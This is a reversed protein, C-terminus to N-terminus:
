PEYIGRNRYDDYSKYKYQHEADPETNRHYKKVEAEFDSRGEISREHAYVKTNVYEEYAKIDEIKGDANYWEGPAFEVAVLGNYSRQFRGAMQHKEEDSLEKPSDIKIKTLWSAGFIENIPKKHTVEKENIVFRNFIAKLEKQGENLEESDAVKRKGMMINFKDEKRKREAPPLNHITGRKATYDDYSSYQYQHPSDPETNRRTKKINAEFEANQPSKWRGYVKTNVHNEYDEINEIKGDMNFWEGPEFEVALLGNWGRQFKNAMEHKQEDTLKEPSDIKIKTLWTAGMSENIPAKYGHSKHMGMIQKREEETLNFNKYM